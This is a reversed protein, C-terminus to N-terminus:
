NNEYLGEYSFIVMNTTLIIICIHLPWKHIIDNNGLAVSSLIVLSFLGTLILFDGILSQKM